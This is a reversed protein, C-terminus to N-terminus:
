GLREDIDLKIQKFVCFWFNEFNIISAGIVRSIRNCLSTTSSFSKIKPCLHAITNNLAENMQTDFRHLSEFIREEMQFQALTRKLIDYIGKHSTKWPFEAEAANYQKGEKAASKKLCWQHDCHEHNDFMHELPAEIMKM